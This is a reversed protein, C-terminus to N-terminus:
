MLRRRLRVLSSLAASLGRQKAALGARDALTIKGRGLAILGEREWEGLIRSVAERAVGLERALATHTGAVVAGERALLAAALRALLPQFALAALQGTLGQVRDAFATFASRRFARLAALLADFTEAPVLLAKLAEEVVGEASYRGNRLLCLTTQFCTQGPPARDYLLERGEALAGKALIAGEDVLLYAPCADGPRFLV